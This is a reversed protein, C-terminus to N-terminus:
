LAPQSRRPDPSSATLTKGLVPDSFPTRAGTQSMLLFDLVVCTPDYSPLSESAPEIGAAELMFCGPFGRNARRSGPSKEPPDSRSLGNVTLFSTGAKSLCPPQWGAQKHLAAEM